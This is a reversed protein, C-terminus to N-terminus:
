EFDVQGVHQYASALRDSKSAQASVAEGDETPGSRTEGMASFLMSRVEEITHM